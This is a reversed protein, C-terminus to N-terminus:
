ARWVPAIDRHYARGFVRGLVFRVPGPVTARLYDREVPEMGDEVWAFFRGAVTPPESRLAKEAAKWEASDFHPILLPEVEREEHDLHLETAERARGVAALATGRDAGSASTAYARVADAAEGLAAAMAEHEHEMEGLLSTDVGLKEMAPFVHTDEGHHHRVLEAHLFDYARALQEARTRDGDRATALGQELRGLDRRVAGHIVRNM